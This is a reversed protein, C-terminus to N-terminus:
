GGGPIGESSPERGAEPGVSALLAGAPEVGLSSAAVVGRFVGRVGAAAARRTAPEPAVEALQGLLDALQRATRVFDGGSQGGEGLVAALGRGSCWAKAAGALGGDVPRTQPLRLEAEEERLGRWLEEVASLRQDVERGAALRSPPQTRGRPEYVFGSVVASLAPPGLGDLLGAELSEAVLLDQEHYLRALREGKSTLRWSEAYGRRELLAVVQDLQVSLSESREAVRRGLRALEGEIRGARALARLHRELDPCASANSAQSPRRRRTPASPPTPPSSPTPAYRPTARALRAAVEALFSRENPAFPVPLEIRGGREPVAAFDSARLVARTGARDVVALRTGSGRRAVSVVVLPGAPGVLGPRDSGARRLGTLVDGPRLTALAAELVSRPPRSGPREEPRRLRDRGGARRLAELEDRTALECTAVRELRALEARLQEQRAELAVVEADTRYQAFSLNLLHRARERSYRQILNAAMNYTPRFSSTLEYTRTSALAAVTAVSLQPAHPVVAFGRDDIGRRGARGTLQTYEGPTLVEHREGSFKTLSDVVVSRAPMNIGLSLTETAFVVKVLSSAFCAEVAERFPPVLGAHHPALGAELGALFRPYGLAGLDDDSLEDLHRDLELRIAAREAPTTLRVGEALCREVAADCGARSFVFYIAPLLDLEALREVLETRRPRALATSRHSNGGRAELALLEPNPRRGSLTPVLRVPRGGRQGLAYLHTLPVPRQEEIVAVTRGRVVTLWAAVEEANSVTASLCVLRVEAPAHVIVEEWVAGRYPNQLYHVEDLVVVQLGELAPASAYIMNRLVETTMVVVPAAANRSVDGTLLGVSRAGYRAALEAYKQNSLAKLPTTYFAKGGAALALEVAYTAVVTKGAGTPAAVLVSCGEDLADLAAEQFPDLAFGAGAVFAARM